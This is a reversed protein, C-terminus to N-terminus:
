WHKKEFNEMYLVLKKVGEQPMANYLSARFGGVLRHGKLAILGVRAAQELFSETLEEREMTFTVNMLSRDKEKVTGRFLRSNDICKYISYAKSKNLREIEEIGGLEQIWKFVLGAMYISFCPPTNFLSKKESHTKYDLMTPTIKGAHGILDDRIIVLTLGAPGVNKQAGAYIMGFKSVDIKESLICSSADTVLPVKGSDPIETFRTGYITNNMTYHFYDAERDFKNEKLMPIERFGSDESYAVISVDGYKNAEAIAKKSWNGTNIYDAKKNKRFLNLPIMAFQSSAGGQLFLVKYNKPIAMIERLRNEAEEIISTFAKSRHSMELVSVGSGNFNLLEKRARKLVIKPLISPGAAFNYVKRM